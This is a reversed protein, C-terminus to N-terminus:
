QKSAIPNSIRLDNAQMVYVIGTEVAAFVTNSDTKPKGVVRMRTGVALKDRIYQRGKVVKRTFQGTRTLILTDGETM